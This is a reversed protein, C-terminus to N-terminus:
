HYKNITNLRNIDQINFCIVKLIGRLSLLLKNKVKQEQTNMGLHFPM